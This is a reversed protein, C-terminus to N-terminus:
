SHLFAHMCAHATYAGAAGQLVRLGVLMDISSAWVCALSTGTFAALSTLYAMRRGFRDALPGWVLNAAAVGFLYVSVSSTVADYSAHLDSRIEELSPLYITDSFPVVFACIAAVLLIWNRLRRSHLQYVCTPGAADADPEAVSSGTGSAADDVFEVTAQPEGGSKLACRPPNRLNIPLVGLQRKTQGGGLLACRGAQQQQPLLAGGGPGM